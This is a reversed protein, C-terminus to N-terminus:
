GPWPFFPIVRKRRTLVCINRNLSGEATLPLYAGDALLPHNKKRFKLAQYTVYLKISGDRWNKLLEGSLDRLDERDADIKKKLAGM